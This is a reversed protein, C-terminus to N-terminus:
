GSRPTTAASKARSRGGDAHAPLIKLRPRAYGFKQLTKVFGGVVDLEREIPWTRTATIIPLFGCEVLQTVGRMAREFTGTGRIPDNDAATFGDISVRIELSYRSAEAARHLATLWDPQLVTGNTLVTAPGYELTAVLIPVM